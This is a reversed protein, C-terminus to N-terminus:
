QQDAPHFSTKSGALQSIEYADSHNCIKSSTKIMGSKVGSWSMAKSSRLIKTSDPLQRDIYRDLPIQGFLLEDVM